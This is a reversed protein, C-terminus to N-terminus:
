RRAVLVQNLTTGNNYAEMSVAFRLKKFHSELKTAIESSHTEILWEPFSVLLDHPVDVLHVEDGEIDLKVVDASFTELLETFDEPSKIMKFVCVNLM